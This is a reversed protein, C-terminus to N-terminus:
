PVVTEVALLLLLLVTDVGPAVEVVPAIEAPAVPCGFVFLLEPPMLLLVMPLLLLLLGFLGIAAMSEGVGVSRGAVGASVVSGSFKDM